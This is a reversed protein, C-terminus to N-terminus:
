KKKFIIYGTVLVVVGIMGLIVYTATKDVNKSLKQAEGLVSINSSLDEQQQADEIQKDCLMKNYYATVQDLYKQYGNIVTTVGAQSAGSKLLTKKQYQSDIETKVSKMVAAVDYCNSKATIPYQGRIADTFDDESNDPVKAETISGGGGVLAGIPGGVIMGILSGKKIGLFKYSNDEGVAWKVNRESM